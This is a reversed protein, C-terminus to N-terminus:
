LRIGGRPITYRISKSRKRRKFNKRRGRNSRYSRRRRM